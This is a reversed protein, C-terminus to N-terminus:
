NHSHKGNLSGDLRRVSRHCYGSATCRRRAGALGFGLRRAPDNGTSARAAKEIKTRRLLFQCCWSLYSTLGDRCPRPAPRVGFYEPRQLCAVHTAFFIVSSNPDDAKGRFPLSQGSNIDAESGFRGFHQTTAFQRSTGIESKALPVPHACSKSPTKAFRTWNLCTPANQCVECTSALSVEPTRQREPGHSLFGLGQAAVQTPPSTIPIRSVNAACVAPRSAQSVLDCQEVCNRRIGRM